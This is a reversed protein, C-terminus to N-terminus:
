AEGTVDNDGRMKGEVEREKEDDGDLYCSHGILEDDTLNVRIRGVEQIGGVKPIYCLPIIEVRHFPVSRTEIKELSEGRHSCVTRVNGPTYTRLSV